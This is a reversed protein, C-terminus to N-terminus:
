PLLLLLPPQQPPQAPTSVIRHRSNPIILALPREPTVAPLSCAFQSLQTSANQSSVTDLTDVILNRDILQQSAPSLSSHQRQQCAHAAAQPRGQPRQEALCAAAAFPRAAVLCAASRTAAASALVDAAASGVPQWAPQLAAACATAACGGSGSSLNRLQSAASRLLLRYQTM